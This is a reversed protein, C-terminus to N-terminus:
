NFKCTWCYTKFGSARKANGCVNFYQRHQVSPLVKDTAPMIEGRLELLGKLNM